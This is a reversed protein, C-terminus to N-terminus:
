GANRTKEEKRKRAAFLTTMYINHILPIILAVCGAAFVAIAPVAVPTEERILQLSTFNIQYALVGCCVSFLTLLLLSVLLYHKYLTKKEGEYTKRGRFYAWCRYGCIYTLGQSEVEAIKEDSDGNNVASDFRVVSIKFREDVQAFDYRCFCRDALVLGRKAMKDLWEREKICNFFVRRESIM